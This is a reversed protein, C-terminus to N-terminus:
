RNKRGDVIASDSINVGNKKLSRLILTKMTEERDFATQQIERKLKAPIKLQITAEPEISM